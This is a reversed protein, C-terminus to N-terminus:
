TNVRGCAGLIQSSGIVPGAAGDVRGDHLGQGVLEGVQLVLEGLELRLHEVPWLPGAKSGEGGDEGLGVVADEGGAVVVVGHVGLDVAGVPVPLQKFDGEHRKDCSM